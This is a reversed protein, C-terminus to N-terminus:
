NIDRVRQSKKLQQQKVLFEMKKLLDNEAKLMLNEHKLHEIQETESLTDLDIKKKRGSNTKRSDKFSKNNRINDKMRKFFSEVRDYGLIDTDFGLKRFAERKSSGSTILNIYDKRFEDTYTIGKESVRKVYKSKKLIDIEEKTFLKKSVIGSGLLLNVCFLVIDNISIM